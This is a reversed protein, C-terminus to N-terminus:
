RRSLIHVMELLFFCYFNHSKWPNVTPAPKAGNQAMKCWKAGSVSGSNPKKYTFHTGVTDVSWISYLYRYFFSIQSTLVRVMVAASLLFTSFWILFKSLDSIVWFTLLPWVETKINQSSLEYPFSLFFNCTTFRPSLQSIVWFTHHNGRTQDIKAMKAM